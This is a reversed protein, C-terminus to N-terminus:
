IEYSKNKLAKRIIHLYRFLQYSNLDSKITDTKTVIKGLEQLFVALFASNNHMQSPYIRRKGHYEWFLLYRFLQYSNLDSKITDTKTVIKGLEQLFVALFASNNHMQSPYIRRRGHYEWFLM